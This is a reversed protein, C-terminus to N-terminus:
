SWVTKQQKNNLVGYISAEVVAKGSKRRIGQTGSFLSADLRTSLSVKFAAFRCQCCVIGGLLLLLVLTVLELSHHSVNVMSSHSANTRSQNLDTLFAKWSLHQNLNLSSM